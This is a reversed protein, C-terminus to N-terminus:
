NHKQVLQLSLPVVKHLLSCQAFPIGAASLASTHRTVPFVAAVAAATGAEWGRSSIIHFWTIWVLGFGGWCCRYPGDLQVSGSNKVDWGPKLLTKYFIKKAIEKKHNCHNKKRNANILFIKGTDKSLSKKEWRLILIALVKWDELINRFFTASLIRSLDLSFTLSSSSRSILLVRVQPSKDIYLSRFSCSLM